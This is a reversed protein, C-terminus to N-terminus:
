CSPSLKFIYANKQVIFTWVRKRLFGFVFMERSSVVLQRLNYELQTYLKIQVYFVSIESARHELENTYNSQSIVCCVCIKWVKM